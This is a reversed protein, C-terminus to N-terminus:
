RELIRTCWIQKFGAQGTDLVWRTTTLNKLIQVITHDCLIQNHHSNENWYDSSWVATSYSGSLYWSQNQEEASSEQSFVSVVSLFVTMAFVFFRM